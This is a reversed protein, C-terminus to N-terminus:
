GAGGCRMRWCAVDWPVFFADARIVMAMLCAAVGTGIPMRVALLGLDNAELGPDTRFVPALTATVARLLAQFFVFASALFSVMLRIAEGQLGPGSM